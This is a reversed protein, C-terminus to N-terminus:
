GVGSAEEWGLGAEKPGGSYVTAPPKKGIETASALSWLLV